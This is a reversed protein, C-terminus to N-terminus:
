GEGHQTPRDEDSFQDDGDEDEARPPLDGKELWRKEQRYRADREEFNLGEAQLDDFDLLECAVNGFTEVEARGGSVTVLVRARFKDPANMITQADRIKQLMEGVGEQTEDDEFGRVFGEATALAAKIKEIDLIQM